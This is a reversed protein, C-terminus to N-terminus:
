KITKPSNRGIEESGEVVEDVLNSEDTAESFSSNCWGGEEEPSPIEKDGMEVTISDSIM